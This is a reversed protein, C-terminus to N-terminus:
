AQSETAKGTTPMKRLENDLMSKANKPHTRKAFYRKRMDCGGTRPGAHPGSASATRGGLVVHPASPSPDPRSRARARPPEPVAGQPRRFYHGWIKSPPRFLYPTGRNPDVDNPAELVEPTPVARLATACSGFLIIKDPRFQEAIRRGLEQIENLAVM